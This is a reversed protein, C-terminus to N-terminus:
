LEGKLGKVKELPTNKPILDDVIVCKCHNEGLIGKRPFGCDKCVIM